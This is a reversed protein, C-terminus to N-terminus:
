GGLLVAHTHNTPAAKFLHVKPFRALSYCLTYGASLLSALFMANERLAPSFLTLLNQKVAGPLPQVCAARLDPAAAPQAVVLLAALPQAVVASQLLGVAPLWQHKAPPKKPVKRTPHFNMAACRIVLSVSFPKLIMIVQDLSEGWVGNRNPDGM